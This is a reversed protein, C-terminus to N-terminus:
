DQIDVVVERGQSGLIQLVNRPQTLSEVHLWTLWAIGIQNLQKVLLGFIDHKLATIEIFFNILPIM